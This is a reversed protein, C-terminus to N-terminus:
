ESLLDVLQKLNKMGGLTAAMERVKRVAEAPNAFGQRQGSAIAADRKARRKRGRAKSKIIYVQNSLVKIGKAALTAVVESVKATPNAALEERIAKAKSGHEQKKSSKAM